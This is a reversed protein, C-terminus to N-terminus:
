RARTGADRSPRLAPKCSGRREGACYFYEYREKVLAYIMRSGCRKCRFVGKLYHDHRRKRVGAGSHSDLIRQVRDFLEGSILPEHRGPYWQGKYKVEGVYFRNRLM